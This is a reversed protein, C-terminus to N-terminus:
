NREYYYEKCSCPYGPGGDVQTIGTDGCAACPSYLEINKFEIMGDNEEVIREAPYLTLLEERTLKIIM